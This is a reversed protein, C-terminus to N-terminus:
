QQVSAIGIGQPVLQTSKPSAPRGTRRGDTRFRHGCEACRWGQTCRWHWWLGAYSILWLGLTLLSLTLHLGHRFTPRRFSQETECFACYAPRHRSSM